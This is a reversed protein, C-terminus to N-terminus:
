CFVQESYRASLNGAVAVGTADGVQTGDLNMRFSQITTNHKLAEAVAVGTADGVQTGYLKLGDAIWAKLLQPAARQRTLDM